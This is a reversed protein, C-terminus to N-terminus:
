EVETINHFIVHSTKTSIEKVKIKRAESYGELALSQAEERTEACVICFHEYEYPFELLKKIWTVRFIKM